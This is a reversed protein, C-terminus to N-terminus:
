FSHCSPVLTRSLKLDKEPTVETLGVGAMRSLCADQGGGEGWTGLNGICGGSPQM